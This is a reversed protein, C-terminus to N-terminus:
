PKMRKLLSELQDFRDRWFAGNGSQALGGDSGACGTTSSLSTERGDRRHVCWSQGSGAGNSAQIRCASVCRCVPDIRTRDARGAADVEEFIARRTRIPSLASCPIPMPWAECPCVMVLRNHITLFFIVIKLQPRQLRDTGRDACCASIVRGDIVQGPPRAPRTSTPRAPRPLTTPLRRAAQM